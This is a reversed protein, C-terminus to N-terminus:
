ETVYNIKIDDKGYQFAIYALGLNFVHTIISGDLVSNIIMQGDLGPYISEAFVYIAFINSGINKWNM